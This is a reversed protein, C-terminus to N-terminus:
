QKIGFYGALIALITGAGGAWRAANDRTGRDKLVKLDGAHEGLIDGHRRNIEAQTAFQGNMSHKLDRVADLIEKRGDAVKDELRNFSSMFEGRTVAEDQHASM